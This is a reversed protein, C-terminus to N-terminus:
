SCAHVANPAEALCGGHLLAGCDQRVADRWVWEGTEDDFECMFGDGCWACSTCAVDGDSFWKVADKAVRIGTAANTCRKRRLDLRSTMVVSPLRTHLAMRQARARKHAAEHAAATAQSVFAAGCRGCLSRRAAAPGGSNDKDKDKWFTRIHLLSQQMYGLEWWGVVIGELLCADREETVRVTHLWAPVWPAMAHVTDWTGARMAVDLVCAFPVPAANKCIRRLLWVHAPKTAWLGAQEIADLPMSASLVLMAMTSHMTSGQMTSRQMKSRQMLSRCM